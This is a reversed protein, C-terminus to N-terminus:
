NSADEEEEKHEIAFPDISIKKQLEVITIPKDHNSIIDTPSGEDLRTIKDLIDLIKSADLAEKLTPAESRVSLQALSRKLITISNNTIENFDVQKSDSLNRYLEAKLLGREDAWKKGAHHIVTSRAVGHREAIVSVPVYNMYDERIKKLKADSLRKNSM